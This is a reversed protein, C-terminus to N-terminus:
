LVVYVITIPNNLKIQQTPPSIAQLLKYIQQILALPIFYWSVHTEVLYHLFKVIYNKKLDNKLRM